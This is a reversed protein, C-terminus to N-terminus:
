IDGIFVWTSTSMSNYNGNSQDRKSGYASNIKCSGTNKNSPNVNSGNHGRPPM